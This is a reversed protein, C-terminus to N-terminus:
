RTDGPTGMGAPTGPRSPPWPFEREPVGSGRSQRTTLTNQDYIKGTPHRVPLDCGTTRNMEWDVILDTSFRM